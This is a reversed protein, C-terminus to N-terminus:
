ARFVAAALEAVLARPVVVILGPRDAQLTVRPAKARNSTGIRALPDLLLDDLPWELGTARVRVPALPFLSVRTGPACDFAVAGGLHFAADDGGLAIVPMNRVRALTSLTALGHDIRPGLVGLAIVGPAVIAALAKDLDTTDQDDIGHVPVGAVAARDRDLSDLDGIVAVPKHGLDLARNAGGDAAVLIPAIALAADLDAKEVSGAGILTVFRATQVIKVM